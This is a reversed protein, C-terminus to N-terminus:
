ALASRRSPHRRSPMTLLARASWWRRRRSSAASCTSRGRRPHSSPAPLSSSRAGRKVAEYVIANLPAVFKQWPTVALLADPHNAKLYDAAGSKDAAVNVAVIVHPTLATAAAMFKALRLLDKEPSSGFFRTGIALAM